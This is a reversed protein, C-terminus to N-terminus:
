NQKKSLSILYILLGLLFPYVFILWFFDASGLNLVEKSFLDYWSLLGLKFSLYNIILAFFLFLYGYYIIKFLNKM